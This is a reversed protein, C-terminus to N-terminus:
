HVRISISSITKNKDLYIYLCQNASEPYYKMCNSNSFGSDIIYIFLTSDDDFQQTVNPNGLINLVSSENKLVNNYKKEQVILLSSLLRFNNSGCTDAKFERSIIEIIEENFEPKLSNHKISVCGTCAVIFVIFLLVIRKM